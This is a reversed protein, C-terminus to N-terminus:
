TLNYLYPIISADCELEHLWAAGLATAAAVTVERGSDRYDLRIDLDAAPVLGGGLEPWEIFLLHGPTLYDRLSLEEFELPSRLRYLDVHVCHLAGLGYIEVLTYTPSRVTGDVGLQRLLGRVVATKGAGLEGRLHVVACGDAAGPFARALARGFGDTAEADPLGITLSTSM